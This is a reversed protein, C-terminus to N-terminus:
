LRCVAQGLLNTNSCGIGLIELFSLHIRLCTKVEQLYM